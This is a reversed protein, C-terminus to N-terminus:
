SLMKIAQCFLRELQKKHNVRIVLCWYIMDMKQIYIRDDFCSLSIKTIEYTGVRHDKGQIRNMLHRLCKENLLVDKYENHSITAVVNKNVGKAKKYDSNEDVLFSYM